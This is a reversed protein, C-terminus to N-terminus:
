RMETPQLGQSFDVVQEPHERERRCLEKALRELDYSFEEALEDKVQWVAAIIEDKM